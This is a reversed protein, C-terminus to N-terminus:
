RRKCALRFPLAPATVRIARSMSDTISFNYFLRTIFLSNKSTGRVLVFKIEGANGLIDLFKGVSGPCEQFKRFDGPLELFTQSDM